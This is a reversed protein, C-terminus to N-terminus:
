QLSRERGSRGEARLRIPGSHQAHGSHGRAARRSSDAAIMAFARTFSYARQAGAPGFGTGACNLTGSITWGGPFVNAPQGLQVGDGVAQLAAAGDVTYTGAGGTGTGFATVSRSANGIFVGTGITITMTPITVNMINGAAEAEM